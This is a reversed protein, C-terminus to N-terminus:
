IEQAPLLHCDQRWSAGEKGTGVQAGGSTSKRGGPFCGRKETRSDQEDLERRASERGFGYGYWAALSSFAVTAGALQVRSAM